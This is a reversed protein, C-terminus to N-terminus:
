VHQSMLYMPEYSNMINTSLTCVYLCMPELHLDLEWMDAACRGDGVVSIKVAQPEMAAVDESGDLLFIRAAASATCM